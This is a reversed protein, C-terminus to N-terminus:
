HKGMKMINAATLSNFHQALLPQISSEAGSIQAQSLATGLLFYPAFAHRLGTATAPRANPKVTEQQAPNQQAATQEPLSPEGACGSLGALLPSCLTIACFTRSLFRLKM